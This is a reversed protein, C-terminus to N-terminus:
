RGYNFNLNKLEQFDLMDKARAYVNTETGYSGDDENRRFKYSSKAKIVNEISNIKFNGVHTNLTLLSPMMSNCIIVDM